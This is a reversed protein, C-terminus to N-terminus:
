FSQNGKKSSNKSKAEQFQATMGQRIPEKEKKEGRYIPSIRKCPTGKQVGRESLFFYEKEVMQIIHYPPKRKM